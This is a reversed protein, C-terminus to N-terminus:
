LSLIHHINLGGKDMLCQQEPTHKYSLKHISSRSCMEQWKEESYPNFLRFLLTHPDVNNIYPMDDILRHSQSHNRYVVALLDHVVYYDKLYSEHIWYQNLLESWNRIVQHGAVSALFWSSGLHCSPQLWSTRFMFLTGHVVYQPLAGTMLVTADCWIGGHQSLLSLRLIDSFQTFPLRGSRYKSMIQEPLSVYDLLNQATLIRVDYDPCQRQVSAVCRQVLLPAQELGQLWCIWIIKPISQGEPEPYDCLYGAYKRTLYKLARDQHILDKVAQNTTFWLPWIARWGEHISYRLGKKRLINLYTGFSRM